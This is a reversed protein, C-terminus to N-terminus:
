ISKASIQKAVKPYRKRFRAALNDTDIAMLKDKRRRWDQPEGEQWNICRDRKIEDEQKIRYRQEDRQSNNEVSAEKALADRVRNSQARQKLEQIKTDSKTFYKNLFEPLREHGIEQTELDEMLQTDFGWDQLAYYFM